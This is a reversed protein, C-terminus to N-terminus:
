SSGISRRGAPTTERATISPPVPLQSMERPGDMLASVLGQRRHRATYRSDNAPVPVRTIYRAADRVGAEILKQQYFIWSFEFVGGLVVLLVPMLVAGEVLATGENDRWLSQLMRLIM